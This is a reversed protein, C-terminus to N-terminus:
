WPDKLQCSGDKCETLSKQCDDDSTCAKLCLTADGEVETAVLGDDCADDRTPGGLKGRFDSSRTARNWNVYRCRIGEKVQARPIAISETAWPCDPCSRTELKLNLTSDDLSVAEAAISFDHVCAGCATPWSEWSVSFTLEDSANQVLKPRWLTDKGGFGCSEARNIMDIATSAESFRWAVCEFGDLNATQRGTALEGSEEPGKCEHLTFDTVKVDNEGSCAFSLLTMVLLNNALTRMSAIM